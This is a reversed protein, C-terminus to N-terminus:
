YGSVASCYSVLKCSSCTKTGPKPCAKYKHVEVNACPLCELPLFKPKTEAMSNMLARISDKNFKDVNKFNLHSETSSTSPDPPLARLNKNELQTSMDRDYSREAEDIIEPTLLSSFLEDLEDM